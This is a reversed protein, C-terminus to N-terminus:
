QTNGTLFVSLVLTHIRLRVLPVNDFLLAEFGICTKKQRGLFVLQTFFAVRFVFRACSVELVFPPGHPTMLRTEALTDLGSVWIQRTAWRM